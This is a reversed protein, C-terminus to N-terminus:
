MRYLKTRPRLKVLCLAFITSSVWPLAQEGPAPTIIGHHHLLITSVSGALGITSWLRVWRRSSAPITGPQSRAPKRGTGPVSGRGQGSVEDSRLVAVSLHDHDDHDHADDDHAHAHAHAHRDQHDHDQHTM